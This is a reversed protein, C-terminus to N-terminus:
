PLAPQRQLQPRAKFTLLTQWKTYSVNCILDASSVAWFKLLDMPDLPREQLTETALRSLEAVLLAGTQTQM